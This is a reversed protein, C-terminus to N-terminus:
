EIRIKRYTPYRQNFEDLYTTWTIFKRDNGGKKVLDLWQYVAGPPMDNDLWYNLWEREVMKDIKVTNAKQMAINIMRIGGWECEIRRPTFWSAQQNPNRKNFDNVYKMWMRFLSTDLIADGLEDLGLYQFVNRPSEDSVLYNGIKNTQIKTATSELNFIDHGVRDFKLLKFVDDTSKGRDLLM